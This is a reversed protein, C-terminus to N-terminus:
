AGSGVEVGSYLGSSEDFFDPIEGEDSPRPWPFPLRNDNRAAWALFEARRDEDLRAWVKPRLEAFSARGTEELARQIEYEWDDAGTKEISQDEEAPPINETM